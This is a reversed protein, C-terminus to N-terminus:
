MVEVEEKEEGKGNKKNEKLNKFKCLHEWLSEGELLFFIDLPCHTTSYDFSTIYFFCKCYAKFNLLM